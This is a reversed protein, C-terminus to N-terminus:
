ADVTPPNTPPLPGPKRPDPPTGIPQIDPAVPETPEPCDHEHHHESM